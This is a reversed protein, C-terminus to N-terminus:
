SRKPRVSLANCAACCADVISTYTDFIRGALYNQRLYQWVDQARRLVQANLEPSYPPLPPLTITDPVRLAHATHWGAGDIIVVAHAGRAVNQSIEKLHLTMAETNVYPMVLAAGT